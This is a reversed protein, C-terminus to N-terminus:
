SMVCALEKTHTARAAPRMLARRMGASARAAKWASRRQPGAGGAQGRESARERKRERDREARQLVPDLLQLRQAGLGNDNGDAAILQVLFVAAHTRAATAAAACGTRARAESCSVGRWLGAAATERDRGRRLFHSPFLGLGKRALNVANEELRRCFRGDVDGFHELGNRALQGRQRRGGKVVEGVESAAVDVRAGAALPALLAALAAAASAGMERARGRRSQQQRARRRRRAPAPPASGRPSYKQQAARATRAGKDQGERRRFPPEQVGVQRGPQM